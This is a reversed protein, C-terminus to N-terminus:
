PTRCAFSGPVKTDGTGRYTAIQPYACVPREWLVENKEVHAGPLETPAQKQEVWAELAVLPDVRNIGAGGACHDLGPVMFLRMSEGANAGVTKVVNSYYNVSNRPAILQDNWGHYMVLKGGRSFFPRLDPDITNMLGGDLEDAHTVDRDFDMTKYDWDPKGMVIYKYHSEAIPFPNPGV